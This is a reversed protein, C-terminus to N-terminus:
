EAFRQVFAPNGARPAEFTIARVSVRSGDSYVNYDSDAIDFASLAAM